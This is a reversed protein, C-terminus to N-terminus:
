QTLNIRNRQVLVHGKIPNPKRTYKRPPNKFGVDTNPIFVRFFSLLFKSSM